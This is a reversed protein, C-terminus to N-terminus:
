GLILDTKGLAEAYLFQSGKESREVDFTCNVFVVNRLFVPGGRYVIRSNVFAVNTLHTEDLVQLCNELTVDTIKSGAPFVSEGGKFDSTCVLTSVPIQVEILSSRYEALQVTANFVPTKLDPQTSQRLTEVATQFFEPPSPKKQIRLNATFQTAAAVSKKALEVDDSRAAMALLDRILNQTAQDQKDALAKIAGEAKTLRKDVGAYQSDVTHTIGVAASIITVMITATAGFLKWPTVGGALKSPIDAHESRALADPNPSPNPPVSGELKQIREFANNLRDDLQNLTLPMEYVTCIPIPEVQM